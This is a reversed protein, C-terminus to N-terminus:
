GPRPAPAPPPASAPSSPAPTPSSPAPTPASPAPTTPVPETAPKREAPERGAPERGSPRRQAGDIRPMPWWGVPSADSSLLLEVRRDLQHKPDASPLQVPRSAGEGRTSIRSADLGEGVLWARVREARTLALAQPEDEDIAAHGVLLLRASPDKSMGDALMPVLEPDVPVQASGPEFLLWDADWRLRCHRGARCPVYLEPRTNGRLALEWRALLWTRYADTLEPAFAPAFAAAPADVRAPPSDQTPAVAVPAEATICRGAERDCRGSACQVDETCAGCSGEICVLSAGCDTTATCPPPGPDQPPGAQAALPDTCRLQECRPRAPDTCDADTQCEQCVGETCREGLELKCHKHDKCMPYPPACAASALMTLGLALGPLWAGWTTPGLMADNTDDHEAPQLRFPPMPEV